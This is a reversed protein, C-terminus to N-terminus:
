CKPIGSLPFSIHFHKQSCLEPLGGQGSLWSVQKQSVPDPTVNTHFMETM